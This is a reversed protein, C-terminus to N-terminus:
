AGKVESRALNEVLRWLILAPLGTTLGSCASPELRTRCLESFFKKIKKKPFVMEGAAVEIM